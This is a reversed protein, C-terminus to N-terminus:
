NNLIKNIKDRIEAAKEFEMNKAAKKMEKKLVDIDLTKEELLEETFKFGYKPIDSINELIKEEQFSDRIEKKVTQPTINHLLNYAIQKERRRSTQEVAYKISETITDAYLIVKGRVNRAARGITQILSTKSRLFGEKDADLIAVLGCEPIDLGERLLNIGVLVDFTGLRLNKLLEVRDFTQVDSHMYEVKLKVESLYQCLSEAMKKTLTTILVRDGNGIVKHCQAILHDIQNATPVIECEPDVLGTPRIIQEVFYGNSEKVEFEGPTASVFVTQPRFDNWEKFTLPRNDKCSPLRFGYEALTSKRAKDGSAMGSIQPIAVHSEDVFLLANKPLYEFLTSQPSGEERGNLYRAYNEIGRCSGTAELMEIDFSIRENIRQEEIFKANERFYKKQKELDIKIQDIIYSLREKLVVFHSNAYLRVKSVKESKKGSVPDFIVIEEIEDGFFMIKWCLEASHSPFIDITDGMVRFQGRKLDFTTRSYLLKVCERIFDERSIVMGVTIELVMKSYDEPSGLGYICSVSAVVIVDERELLSRTASHRMRDIRENITAEKDIYKDSKPIYAEPQYYDYYSVFYEVANHPFFEKMEQYLQAALTKNPAMILTPRQLQSIVSAMTYTKGSGTIGLLTIDRVGDNIANCIFNIAHPQDGAPRYQSVLEFKM